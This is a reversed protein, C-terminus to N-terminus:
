FGCSINDLSEGSIEKLFEAINVKAADLTFSWFLLVLFGGIFRM